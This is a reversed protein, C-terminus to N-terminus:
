YIKATLLYDDIFLRLTVHQGLHFYLGFPIFRLVCYFVFVTRLTITNRNTSLYCRRLISLCCASHPM